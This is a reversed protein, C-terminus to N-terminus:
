RSPTKVRRRASSAVRPPPLFRTSNPIATATDTRVLGLSECAGIVANELPKGTEYLLDRLACADEIEVELERQRGALRDANERLRLLEGRLGIEAPLEYQAKVSWDPRPTRKGGRQLAESAAIIARLFRNGLIAASKRWYTTEGRTYMMKDIDWAVPPLLVLAGGGGGAVTAGVVKERKKTWLIPAVNTPDFYAEYASASGFEDWYAALPGLRAPVSIETGCKSVLGELKVPLVDFSGVAQVIDTTVRSRGTGSHTKEGTHYYVEEPKIVPVFVVKGGSIAAALERRWHKFDHSLGASDSEDILRRGNYKQFSGYERLTPAFIVVDADFLSRDSRFPIYEADGPVLRGVSFVTKGMPPRRARPVPNLPGHAPSQISSISGPPGPGREALRLPSGARQWGARDPLNAAALFVHMGDADALDKSRPPRGSVRSQDCGTKQGARADAAFRSGARVIRRAAPIPRYRFGAAAACRADGRDEPQVRRRSQRFGPGARSDIGAAPRDARGRGVAGGIARVLQHDLADAQGDTLLAAVKAATDRFVEATAAIISMAVETKADTTLDAFDGDLKKLVGLRVETLRRDEDALLRRLKETQEDTLDLQKQLKPDALFDHGNQWTLSFVFTLSRPKRGEANALLDLDFPKGILEHFKTRQEATMLALCKEYMIEKQRDAFEKLSQADAGPEKAARDITQNVRRALVNMQMLQDPTFQVVRQVRDNNFVDVGASQARIQWLRLAQQQDLVAWSRESFQEMVAATIRDRQAADIPKGDQKAADLKGAIAIEMEALIADLKGAQEALRQLEKRVARNGFLTRNATDNAELVGPGLVALCLLWIALTPWFRAIM